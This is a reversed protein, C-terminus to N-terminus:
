PQQEGANGIPRLRGHRAAAGFLALKAMAAGKAQRGSPSGGCPYRVRSSRTSRAASVRLNTQGLCVQRM